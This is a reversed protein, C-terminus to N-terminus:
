LRTGRAAAEAPQRRVAQEYEREGAVTTRDIGERVQPVGGPLVGGRGFFQQRGIAEARAAPEAARASLAARAQEAEATRKAAAGLQEFRLDTEKMAQTVGSAADKLENFSKALGGIFPLAEAAKQGRLSADVTPDNRANVFGAAGGLLKQAGQLGLFGGVLKGLAGSLLGGGEAGQGAARAQASETARQAQTQMATRTEAASQRQSQALQQTSASMQRAAGTLAQEAAGGGGGGGGGSPGSVGGSSLRSQSDAARGASAALAQYQASAKQAADAASQLRQPADGRANIDLNIKVDAV